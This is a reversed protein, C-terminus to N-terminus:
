RSKTGAYDRDAFFIHNGCSAISVNSWNFFPTVTSPSSYSKVPFNSAKRFFGSQLVARQLVTQTTTDVVRDGGTMALRFEDIASSAAWNMFNGSFQGSCEHTDPTADTAIVFWGNNSDYNYCKASNFYGLYTANEDYDGRYAAGTTPFEVSLSLMLNPHINQSRGYLPVTSIDVTPVTNAAGLLTIWGLAALAVLGRIIKM